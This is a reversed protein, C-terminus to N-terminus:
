IIVHLGQLQLLRMVLQRNQMSRVWECADGLDLHPLGLLAAGEVLQEDLAAGTVGPDLVACQIIGIGLEVPDNM